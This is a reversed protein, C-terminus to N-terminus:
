FPDVSGSWAGKLSSKEEAPHSKSHYTLTGFKFDRPEGTVISYIATCFASFPTTQVEVLLRRTLRQIQQIMLRKSWTSSHCMSVTWNLEHATFSGKSCGIALLSQGGRDWGPPMVYTPSRASHWCVAGAERGGFPEGSVTDNKNSNKAVTLSLETIFIIAHWLLKDLISLGHRVHLLRLTLRTMSMNYLSALIKIQVVQYQSAHEVYFKM